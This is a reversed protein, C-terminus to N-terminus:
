CKYLYVCVCVSVTHIYANRNVNNNTLKGYQIKLVLCYMGAYVSNYM